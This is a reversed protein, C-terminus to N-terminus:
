LLEELCPLFAAINKIDRLDFEILNMKLHQALQVCYHFYLSNKKFGALYIKNYFHKQLYNIKAGGILSTFHSGLKKQPNLVYIHALPLPAQYFSQKPSWHYKNVGPRIASLNDVTLNVHPITDAWLDISCPGPFVLGEKNIVCLSDSLVLHGRQLMLAAVSSKGSCEEALYAVAEDGRKLVSGSLVFLDRQMLLAALCPGSLFVALSENDTGPEPDFFISQGHQVLFRAVSPVNLWLEQENVQFFLGEEIVTKLGTKSVQTQVIEADFSCPAEPAQNVYPLSFTSRLTLGYAQLYFFNKSM